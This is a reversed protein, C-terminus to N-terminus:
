GTWYLVILINHQDDGQQEDLKIKKNEDGSAGVSAQEAPTAHGNTAPEGEDMAADDDDHPRKCRNGSSTSSSPTAAQQSTGAYAKLFLLIPWYLSRDFHYYNLLNLDTLLFLFPM